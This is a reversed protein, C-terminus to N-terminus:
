RLGYKLIFIFIKEDVDSFLLQGDQIIINDILNGEISVLLMILM